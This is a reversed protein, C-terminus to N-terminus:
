SNPVRIHQRQNGHCTDLLKLAPVLTNAELIPSPDSSWLLLRPYIHRFMNTLFIELDCLFGNWPWIDQLSRPRKEFPCQLGPKGKESSYSSQGKPHAWASSVDFLKSYFHVLTRTTPPTLDYESLVVSIESSSGPPFLCGSCFALTCNLFTVSRSSSVKRQSSSHM